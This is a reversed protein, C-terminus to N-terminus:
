KSFEVIEEDKLFFFFFFVKAKLYISSNWAQFIVATLIIRKIWSLIPVPPPCKHIRYHVKWNWLIPLIEQSASLRDAECSPIQEM